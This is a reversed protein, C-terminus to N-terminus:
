RKVHIYYMDFYECNEEPIRQSEMNKVCRDALHTWIEGTHEVNIMTAM